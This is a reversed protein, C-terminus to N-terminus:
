IIFEVWGEKLILKPVRKSKWKEAEKTTRRSLIIPLVEILKLSGKRYRGRTKGNVSTESNVMAIKRLSM